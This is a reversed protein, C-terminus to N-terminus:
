FTIPVMGQYIGHDRVLANNRLRQNSKVLFALNNTAQEYAKNNQWSPRDFPPIAYIPQM